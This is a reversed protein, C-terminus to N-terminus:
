QCAIERAKAEAEAAVPVSPFRNSVEGLTLCAEQQQGLEFLAAGLRFLAQPAQSGNPSGSFSELYARAASKWDGQGALAEGRFFQAEDTFPSGPYAALFAEFGSQAGAFDGDELTRAARNFDDEENLALEAGASDPERTIRTTVAEGGLPPTDLPVTSIDCDPTLECLRFELDGIRNTGDTVIRDIRFELTESRDTLRALASELTQLRETVSGSVSSDVAGTTNLEQKLTRLEVSLVALEQRIDALSQARDQAIAPGILGFCLVLGLAYRM